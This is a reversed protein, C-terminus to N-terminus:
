GKCEPSGPDLLCLYQSCDGYNVPVSTFTATKADYLVDKEVVTFTPMRAVIEPALHGSQVLDQLVDIGMPRMRLRMRLRAPEVVRGRYLCERTHGGPASSTPTSPPLLNSSKLSVADWFMHAEGGQADNFRDRLMCPHAPQGVPEEVAGDPIVGESYLEVNQADYATVELWMRRDQAAGSPQAHGAQTEISVKYAFGPSQLREVAFYSISRSQLQCSEVASRLAADQPNDPTLAVDVAPWLHEHVTRATVTEGPRGTMTAAEVNTLSADMHCDQCSQFITPDPQAVVSTLYEELTRELRVGNPMRIDHCTGCMVSSKPNTPDHSESFHVKHATPQLAAPSRLPARMVDDNALTINSIGNVHDPGTDTANHCFYCTVGQLHQPLTSLDAYNAIAKESVAMPAHCNVCFPGLTGNTEQQGRTNMAQFVPDKTAYAHMSGSWERYHKPHCDKCSEPNLLEERTLAPQDEESSQCACLALMALWVYRKM